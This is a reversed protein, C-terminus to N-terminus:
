VRRDQSAGERLPVPVLDAGLAVGEEGDESPGTVRDGRGGLRLSREFRM